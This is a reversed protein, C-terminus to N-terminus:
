LVSIDFTYPIMQGSKDRIELEMHAQQGRAQAPVKWSFIQKESLQMGTPADKLVCSVGGASSQVQLQYTYLQGATANKVPLSSVYLYDVGQADMLERCDFRRFMILNTQPRTFILAGHNPLFYPSPHEYNNPLFDRVTASYGGCSWIQNGPQCLLVRNDPLTYVNLSVSYKPEWNSSHLYSDIDASHWKLYLPSDEAPLAVYSAFLDVGVGGVSTLAIGDERTHYFLWSGTADIATCDHVTSGQLNWLLETLGSATVKLIVEGLFFASGDASAWVSHRDNPQWNFYTPPAIPPRGKFGGTPPPATPVPKSITTVTKTAPDILDPMAQGSVALLPADADCGMSLLGYRKGEGVQIDAEHKLTQLDWQEIVQTDRLLVFLKHRGAAFSLDYSHMPLYTILKAQRTDIVALKRYRKLHVFLYDGGGGLCSAEVVEPMVLTVGSTPIGTRAPISIIARVPTLLGTLCTLLLTFMIWRRHHLPM